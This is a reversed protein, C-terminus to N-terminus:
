RGDITGSACVAALRLEAKVKAPEFRDPYRKHDSIGLPDGSELTAYREDFSGEDLLLEIREGIGMRFHHGCHPCVRLNRELQKNFVQQECSPCKTWADTPGSRRRSFPFKIPM